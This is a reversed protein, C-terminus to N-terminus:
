YFTFRESKECGQTHIYRRYAAHWTLHRTSILNAHEPQDPGSM